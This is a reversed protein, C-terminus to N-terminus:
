NNSEKLKSNIILQKNDHIPSCTTLVLQKNYDKNINIYGNKDQEWINTVIYVYKINKYILIINDNIHLKDLYKFYSIDDDGSHAAIFMISNTNSPEISGDLITVNEDVNNHKSNISYLDNNINIKNIIIKGIPKEKYKPTLGNILLSKSVISTKNNTYIVNCIVLYIILIIICYCIKKFM